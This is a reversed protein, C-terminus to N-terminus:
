LLQAITIFSFDIQMCNVLCCCSCHFQKVCLFFFFFKCFVSQTLFLSHHKESNFTKFKEVLSNPLCTEKFNVCFIKRKIIESFLYSFLRWKSSILHSLLWKQSFWSETTGGMQLLNLISRCTEHSNEGSLNRNTKQKKRVSSIKKWLIFYGSAM